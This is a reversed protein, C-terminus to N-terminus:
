SGSCCRRTFTRFGVHHCHHIEVSDSVALVTRASPPHSSDAGAGIRVGAARYHGEQARSSTAPSAITIM